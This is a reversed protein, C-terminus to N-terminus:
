KPRDSQLRHYCILSGYLMDFPVDMAKMYSMFAQDVVLPQLPVVNMFRKSLRGEYLTKNVMPNFKLQIEMVVDNSHFSIFIANVRHPSISGLIVILSLWLSDWPSTLSKNESSLDHIFCDSM